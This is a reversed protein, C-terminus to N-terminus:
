KKISRHLKSLTGSIDSGGQVTYDFRYIIDNNLYRFCNLISSSAQPPFTIVTTTCLFPPLQIKQLYICFDKYIIHFRCMTKNNFWFTCLFPKWAFSESLNTLKLGSFLEDQVYTVSLIKSVIHFFRRFPM